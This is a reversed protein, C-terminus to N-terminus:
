SRLSGAPQSRTKESQPNTPQPKPPFTLRGRLWLKCIVGSGSNCWSMVELTRLWSRVGEVWLAPTRLEFVRSLVGGVCGKIPYFCKQYKICKCVYYVIYVSVYM